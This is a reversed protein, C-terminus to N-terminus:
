RGVDIEEMDNFLRRVADNGRLVAEYRRRARAEARKRHIARCPMEPLSQGFVSDAEAKLAMLFTRKARDAAQPDTAADARAWLMPFFISDATRDFRARAVNTFEYHGRKIADKEGSAAMMVLGDRLAIDFAEIEKTQAEALRGIEDSAFMSLQASPVPITRSKFGQTKSNGRCIAEALLLMDGTEHSAPEALVPRTWNGSYLLEYIRKYDFGRRSITLSKGERIEIPTWPDGVNGHLAKANIRPATSNACEARLGREHKLLRVRRCVEIFWPDLDDLELRTGEPWANLWLLADGGPTGLTSSDGPTEKALLVSLDRLWHRSAHIGHDRRNAPVLGLMPRSSSGGNMRAIGQNGRGGYGECTQLSVLAYVWDEPEAQMAVSQKQDHNRATILMDLDDPTTKASWKLGGPDPPQMFAPLDRSAM